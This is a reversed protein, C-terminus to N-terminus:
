VETLLEWHLFKSIHSIAFNKILFFDPFSNRPRLCPLYTLIHFFFTSWKNDNIYPFHSFAYFSFWTSIIILYQLKFNSIHKYHLLKSHGWQIPPPPLRPCLSLQFSFPLPQSTLFVPIPYSFKLVSLLILSNTDLYHNPNTSKSM